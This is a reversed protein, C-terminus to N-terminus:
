SYVVRLILNDSPECWAADSGLAKWPTTQRNHNNQAYAARAHGWSFKVFRKARKANRLVTDGRQEVDAWPSHPSPPKALAAHRVPDADHDAEESRPSHRDVLNLLRSDV